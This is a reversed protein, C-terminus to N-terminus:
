LQSIWEGTSLCKSQKYNKTIIFLTAMYMRMYIKIQAYSKMERSHYRPASNSTRHKVTYDVLNSELDGCKQMNVLLTCSDRKTQM